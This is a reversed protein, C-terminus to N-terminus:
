RGKDGTSGYWPTWGQQSQLWSAFKLAKELDLMDQPTYGMKKLNNRQYWDNIQFIGIDRSKRGLEPIYPNREQQILSPNLSSESSAVNIARNPDQPFYQRILDQIQTNVNQFQPFVTPTPMASPQQYQQQQPASTPTPTAQGPVRWGQPVPMQNKPQGFNYSMDPGPTPTPSQGGPLPSVPKPSNNIGLLSLLGQLYGQVPGGGNNM